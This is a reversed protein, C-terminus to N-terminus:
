NLKIAKENFHKTFLNIILQCFVPEIECCYAVRKLSHAAHLISGSGATLDLVIDGPRTCRRLAKEHLSPPKQTPHEYDSGALRKIMWINLLDLIDDGLRNGSGVERNMVENLNKVKDSLWPRGITGYVCYETIKNFAVKPTASQNNKLWICLRKADIGLEKYLAQLLWVWSEDCWFMIHADPKVASLANAIVAKVFKRYEVESKADNTTGGYGAKNGVGRNYSLGINFPTDTNVLDAKAGAMLRAVVKPDVADGCLLRNPGLAFYDGPKITTKKAKPLEAEPNWESDDIELNDDILRSLDAADFGATLLQGLDFDTALKEWDWSGGSRNSTLLYNKFEQESLKRSPIRVDIEEEGRGLLQLVKIRQHGAVLTGDADCAPIEVLGFKKLSRTLGRQQVDSLTRPNGSYPILDNVKRRETRWELKKKKHM